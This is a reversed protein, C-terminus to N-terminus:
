EGPAPDGPEPIAVAESLAALRLDAEAIAARAADIDPDAAALIDHLKRIDAVAADVQPGLRGLFALVEAGLAMIRKERGLIRDLRRGILHYSRLVLIVLMGWLLVNM